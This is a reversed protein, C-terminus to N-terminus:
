WGKSGGSGTDSGSSKDTSGSSTDSSGTSTDGPSTASGTDSSGGPLAGTGTSGSSGLGTDPATTKADARIKVAIEEGQVENFSARVPQGEALEDFTAERGDLEVTTQPVVSLTKTVGQETEISVADPSLVTIRGVVIEDSAHGQISPGPQMMPDQGTSAQPQQAAPQPSSATETRGQKSAHQCAIGFVLPVALAVARVNM